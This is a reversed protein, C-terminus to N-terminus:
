RAGKRAERLVREAEHWACLGTDYKAPTVGHTCERCGPDPAPYGADDGSMADRWEILRGLALVAALALGNDPASM